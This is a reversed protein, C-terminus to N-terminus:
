EFSKFFGDFIKAYLAVRRINILSGKKPLLESIFITAFNDARIEGTSGISLVVDLVADQENSPAVSAMIIAAATKVRKMEDRKRFILEDQSLLRSLAAKLEAENAGGANISIRYACSNISKGMKAVKEDLFQAELFRLGRPSNSNLLELLTSLDISEALYLDLYESESLVGIPLPPSYSIKTRPHFGETKITGIKARNLTREISRMMDLHSIYILRGEKAYKLRLRIMIPGM